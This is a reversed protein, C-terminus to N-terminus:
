KGYAADRAIADIEGRYIGLDGLERDTLTNLERQTQRYVGYRRRSENLGALFAAFRDALGARSHLSITTM